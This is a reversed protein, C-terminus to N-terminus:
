GKKNTMGNDYIKIIKGAIAHLSDGHLVTPPQNMAGQAVVMNDEAQWLRRIPTPAPSGVLYWAGDEVATQDRDVVLANGAIIEPALSDDPAQVVVLREGPLDVAVFWGLYDADLMILKGAIAAAISVVPIMVAQRAALDGAAAEDVLHNLPVRSIRLSDLPLPVAVGAMEEYSMGFVEAIRRRIRESGAARGSLINHIHGVTCGVQDALETQSPSNPQEMMKKLNDLFNM